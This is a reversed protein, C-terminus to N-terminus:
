IDIVYGICLMSSSPVGGGDSGSDGSVGDGSVGDGSVGDVSVGLICVSSNGDGLGM